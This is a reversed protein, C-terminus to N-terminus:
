HRFSRSSKPFAWNNNILQVQELELWELFQKPQSFWPPCVSRQIFGNKVGIGGWAYLLENTVRYAGDRFEGIPIARSFRGSLDPNAFVVWHDRNMSNVRTHANWSLKTEPVESVKLVTDVVMIGYLAYILKHNCEEIPKFSAFFALFDGKELEGVRLGRGTSQDGYTSFDFDPDLHTGRGVLSEPFEITVENKECWLRFDPILDNYSTRMGACFDDDSQPIPM